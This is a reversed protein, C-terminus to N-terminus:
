DKTDASAGLICRAAAVCEKSEISSASVRRATRICENPAMGARREPCTVEGVGGGDAGIGLDRLAVAEHEAADIADVARRGVGVNADPGTGRGRPNM